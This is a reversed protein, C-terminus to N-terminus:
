LAASAAQIFAEAFDKIPGEAVQAQLQPDISGVNQALHFNAAHFISFRSTENSRTVVLLASTEVLLASTGLLKKNSSTLCKNSSAICKNRTTLLISYYPLYSAM